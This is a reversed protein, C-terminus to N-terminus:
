KYVKLLPTSHSASQRGTHLQIITTIVPPEPEEEIDESYDTHIDSDPETTSGERTPPRRLKYRYIKELESLAM